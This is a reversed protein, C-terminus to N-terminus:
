ADGVDSLDIQVVGRTVHELERLGRSVADVPFRCSYTLVPLPFLACIAYEIGSNWGYTFVDKHEDVDYTAARLQGLLRVRPDVTFGDVTTGAGQASASVTAGRAGATSNLTSSM